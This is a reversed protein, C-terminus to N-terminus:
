HLSDGERHGDCWHAWAVILWLANGAIVISRVDPPPPGFLNLMYIAFLVGILGWSGFKGIRDVPDTSRLYVWAGSFGLALELLATARFSNWLGLGFMTSSGPALPLDPRHSLFDLLWHSFVLIGVVVANRKSRQIVYYGASLLLAWLLAGALSHTWPYDYFDLPTVATNGPDLRVHEVGLLLLVPWLLDMFQAAFFLMGLSSEPAIKKAAMGMAFHGLFM